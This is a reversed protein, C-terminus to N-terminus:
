VSMARTRDTRGGKSTSSLSGHSRREISVAGSSRCTAVIELFFYAARNDPYTLGLLHDPITSAAIRDGGRAITARLRLPERLKRTEAPAFELVDNMELLSIDDRSRCAVELRAMFGGVEATHAIFIAGARRNREAWNAESDIDMGRENLVQAAKRTIGYIMPRPGNEAWTPLQARPRELYRNDYLARLSRLVNQASGGDLAALDASSLYRHRRVYELLAIDRAGPEFPDLDEARRFLKSRRKTLSSEM